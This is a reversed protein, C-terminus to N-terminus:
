ELPLPTVARYQDRPRSVNTSVRSHREVELAVNGGFLHQHNGEGLHLPPHLPQVREVSDIGIPRAEIKYPKRRADVLEIGALLVALLELSEPVLTM